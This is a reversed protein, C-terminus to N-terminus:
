RPVSNGFGPKEANPRAAIEKKLNDFVVVDIGDRQKSAIDKAVAIAKQKTLNDLM